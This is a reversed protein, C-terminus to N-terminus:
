HLRGYQEILQRMGQVLLRADGQLAPMGATAPALDQLPALLALGAAQESSYLRPQQRPTQGFEQAVLRAFEANSVKSGVRALVRTARATFEGEGRSEWAM